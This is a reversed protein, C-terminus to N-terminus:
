GNNRESRGFLRTLFIPLGNAHGTEIDATVSMGVRLPPAKDLNDIRIRMPVRQVVKVWNGTTNQAPLLSFSSASAPSISEVRGNLEVGPYTDVSISVPEGPRVYTLETEKPSAEIWINQNSVLDFAPQSAKLYSGIQLADVNTVIGSFPAKVISDNLNRQADQVASLAQQYFPNEEITQNADGNLQALAAAAQAKAVNVKQQASQLNQKAQDFTATAAAGRSLLDQQRKFATEFFPLDSEAQQIQVLALQYNAHLTLIQSRVTGLQAQAADLATQFSDPKLRFLVQGAAVTQNERVDISAVTGSVDTSVGVTDAQVYANDTSM